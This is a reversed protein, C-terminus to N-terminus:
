INLELVKVIEKINDQAEKFDENTKLKFDRPVKKKIEFFESEYSDSSSFDEEFNAMKRGKHNNREILELSQKLDLKQNLINNERYYNNGLIQHSEFHTIKLLKNREKEEQQLKYEKDNAYLNYIENFEKEIENNNKDQEEENIEEYKNNIKNKPSNPKKNNNMPSNSIPITLNEIDKRLFEIIELHSAEM